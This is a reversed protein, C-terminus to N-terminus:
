NKKPKEQRKQFSIPFEFFSRGLADVLNMKSCTVVRMTQFQLMKEISEQTCVCFCFFFVCYQLILVNMAGSLINNKCLCDLDVLCKLSSKEVGNKMHLSENYFHSFSLPFLKCFNDKRYSLILVLITYWELM